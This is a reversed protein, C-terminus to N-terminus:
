VREFAITWWFTFKRCYEHWNTRYFRYFVGDALSGQFMFQGTLLSRLFMPMHM